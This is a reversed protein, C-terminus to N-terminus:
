FVRDDPLKQFGLYLEVHLMLETSLEKTRQQLLSSAQALRRTETEFRKYNDMYYRLKALRSETFCQTETCIKELATRVRLISRLCRHASNWRTKVHNILAIGRVRIPVSGRKKKYESLLNRSDNSSTVFDQVDNIFNLALM